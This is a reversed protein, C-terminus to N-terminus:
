PFFEKGSAIAQNIASPPPLILVSRREDGEDGFFIRSIVVDGDGHTVVLGVKAIGLVNMLIPRADGRWPKGASDEGIWGMVFVLGPAIEIVRRNLGDPLPSLLADAYCACVGLPMEKENVACWEVGLKAVLKPDRNKHKM